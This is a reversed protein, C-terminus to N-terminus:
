KLRQFLFLSNTTRKTNISSAEVTSVNKYPGIDRMGFESCIDYPDRFDTEENQLTTVMSFLHLSETAGRNKSSSMRLLISSLCKLINESINNPSEDGSVKDDSARQQRAEANEPNTVRNELQFCSLFINIGIGFIFSLM